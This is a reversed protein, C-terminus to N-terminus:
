PGGTWNGRRRSDPHNREDDKSCSILLVLGIAHGWLYSEALKGLTVSLDVRGYWGAIQAAGPPQLHNEEVTYLFFIM